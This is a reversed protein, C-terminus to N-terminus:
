ATFDVVPFGKELWGLMGGALHQVRRYPTQTHLFELIIGTRHDSRCILVLDDEPTAIKTLNCLWDAPDANGAADFFTMQHSGAIVGTLHWEEVRRIDVLVMGASQAALESATLKRKETDGM